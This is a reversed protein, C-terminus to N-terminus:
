GLAEEKDWSVALFCNPAPIDFLEDIVPPGILSVVISVGLVILVTILIWNCRSEKQPTQEAM